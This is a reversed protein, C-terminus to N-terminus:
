MVAAYVSDVAVKEALQISWGRRGIMQAHWQSREVAWQGSNRSLPFTLSVIKLKKEGGLMIDHAVETGIDEPRLSESSADGTASM